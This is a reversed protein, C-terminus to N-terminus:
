YFSYCVMSCQKLMGTQGEVRVSVGEATATVLYYYTTGRELPATLDITITNGSTRSGAEVVSDSLDERTSYEIQCERDTSPFGDLFTCQVTSTDVDVEVELLNNIADPPIPLFHLKM